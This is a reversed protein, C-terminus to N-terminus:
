DVWSPNSIWIVGDITYNRDIQAGEMPSTRKIDIFRVLLAEEGHQTNLRKSIAQGAARGYRVAQGPCLKVHQQSTCRGILLKKAPMKYRSGSPSLSARLPELGLLM